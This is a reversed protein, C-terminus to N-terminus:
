SLTPPRWLDSPSSDPVRPIINLATNRITSIHSYTPASSFIVLPSVSCNQDAKCLEGTKAATEADNCCDASINHEMDGMGGGNNEMPCSTNYSHAYGVNVLALSLCLFLLTVVRM